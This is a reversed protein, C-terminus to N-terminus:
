SASHRAALMKRVCSYGLKAEDAHNGFPYGSTLSLRGDPGTPPVRIIVTCVTLSVHGTFEKPFFILTNYHLTFVKLIM